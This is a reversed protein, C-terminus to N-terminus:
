AIAIKKKQELPKFLDQFGVYSINCVIYFDCFLAFIAVIMRSPSIGGVQKCGIILGIIALIPIGWILLLFLLILIKNKM